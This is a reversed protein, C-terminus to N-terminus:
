YTCFATVDVLLVVWLIYVRLVCVVMGLYAHRVGVTVCMAYVMGTYNRKVTSPKKINCM